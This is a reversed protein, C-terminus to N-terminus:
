PRRPGLPEPLVVRIRSRAPSVGGVAPQASTSPVLIGDRGFRLRIPYMVWASPTYEARVTASFARKKPAIYPTTPSWGAASASPRTSRASRRADITPVSDPPWRDVPRGDQEEVFRGDPDIREQPDLEPGM